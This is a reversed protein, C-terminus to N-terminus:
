AQPTRASAPPLRHALAAAKGMANMINAIGTLASSVTPNQSLIHTTSAPSRMACAIPTPTM